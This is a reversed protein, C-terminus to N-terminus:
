NWVQLLAVLLAKHSGLAGLMMLLVCSDSM